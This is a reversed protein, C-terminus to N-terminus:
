EHKIHWSRASLWPKLFNFHKRIVMPLVNIKILFVVKNLFLLLSKDLKNYNLRVDVDVYVLRIRGDYGVVNKNKDVTWEDKRLVQYPERWWLWVKEIVSSTEIDLLSGEALAFMKLELVNDLVARKLVEAIVPVVAGSVIFEDPTFAVCLGDMLGVWVFKDSLYTFKSLLASMIAGVLTTIMM